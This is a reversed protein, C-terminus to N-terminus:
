AFNALFVRKPLNRKQKRMEASSIQSSIHKFVGQNTEQKNTFISVKAPQFSFKSFFYVNKM